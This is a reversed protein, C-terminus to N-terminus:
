GSPPRAAPRPTARDRRPHPGPHAHPHRAPQRGDGRDRRARRLRHHLQLHADRRARDGSRRHLVVPRQLDQGDGSSLQRHRRPLLHRARRGRPARDPRAQRADQARHLRLGRARRRKGPRAGLPHQRGRRLAGQARGGGDGVQRPRGRGQARARDPQRQLHPLADVQHGHRQPRGRGPAAAAGGRRLVRLPPAGRHGEQPHRRLLRRQVRPHARSLPHQAAQVGSRAAGARDAPRHRRARAHGGQHVRRRRPHRAGAGRLAAPADADARRDRAPHRPRPAPAQAGDRLLAVLDEAEEQVEIDSDRLVRFAGHSRALFGPFLRSLYMGIMSEIRIFRIPKAGDGAAGDEVPLRVFRVLQSPIPILAHM